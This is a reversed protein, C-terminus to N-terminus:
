MTISARRCPVATSSMPWCPRPRAPARKETETSKPRRAAASSAELEQRAPLKDLPIQFQLRRAVPPAAVPTLKGRLLRNVEDAVARGHRAVLELTGRPQPNADGGCGISIMAIAGPHDTEIYEQAMGAWDGHIRNHDGGLTTCHCAYNVVIALVKGQASTACLLPLSPDVPGVTNM